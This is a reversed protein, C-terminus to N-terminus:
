CTLSGEGTQRLRADYDTAVTLLGDIYEFAAVLTDFSRPALEFNVTFTLDYLEEGHEEGIVHHIVKIAQNRFRVVAEAGLRVDRETNALAQAVEPFLDEIVEQRNVRVVMDNHHLPSNNFTLKEM